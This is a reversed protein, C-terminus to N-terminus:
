PLDAEMVEIEDWVGIEHIAAKVEEEIDELFKLGWDDQKEQAEQKGKEILNLMYLLLTKSGSNTFM